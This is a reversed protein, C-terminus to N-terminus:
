ILGVMQGARQALRRRQSPGRYGRRPSANEGQRYAKCSASGWRIPWLWSYLQFPPLLKLAIAAQPGAAVLLDPSLAILDTVSARLRDPPQSFRYEISLNGRDIWGYNRLEDLLVLEAQNLAQGSEDGVALFGLRRRAGAGVFATAFRLATIGAIFERRKM